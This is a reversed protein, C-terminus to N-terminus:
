QALMGSRLGIEDERTQIAVARLRLVHWCRRWATM